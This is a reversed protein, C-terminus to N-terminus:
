VNQHEKTRHYTLDESVKRVDKKVEKVESHIDAVEEIIHKNAEQVDRLAEGIEACKDVIYKQSENRVENRKNTDDILMKLTEQHRADTEKEREILQKNTQRRDYLVYAIILLCAAGYWPMNQLIPAVSTITSPDM